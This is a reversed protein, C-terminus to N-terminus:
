VNCHANGSGRTSVTCRAPGSVWVDGSGAIAVNATESAQIRIDGSGVVKASATRSQVGRLDIDGSGAVSASANQAAGAAKINGSGAVKMNLTAVQLQAIEIDGSGAISADFSDGEVRDIRIDGSGALKAGRLVPLTVYIRTTARSRWNVSWDGKKYGVKLTGDEVRLDLRDLMEADGEARVSHTGGVSIVLDPSGSLGVADFGALDFSRQTVAGRREGEQADAAMNCAVLALNSLLIALTRKVVDESATNHFCYLL